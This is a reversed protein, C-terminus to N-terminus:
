KRTIFGLEIVGKKRHFTMFLGFSERLVIIRLFRRFKKKKFFCTVFVRKSIGFKRKKFFRYPATTFSQQAGKTHVTVQAKVAKSGYDYIPCIVIQQRFLNKVTTQTYSINKVNKFISAVFKLLLM